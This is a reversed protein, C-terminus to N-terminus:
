TQKKQLSDRELEELIVEIEDESFKREPELAERDFYFFGIVFSYDESLFVVGTWREDTFVSIRVNKCAPNELQQLTEDGGFVEVKRERWSNIRLSYVSVLNRMSSAIYDECIVQDGVQCVVRFDAWLQQFKQNTKENAFATLLDQFRM